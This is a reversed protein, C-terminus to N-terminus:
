EYFDEVEYGAEELHDLVSNEVILHGAGVVVFYTNEGEQELLEGINKAMNIDRIGFLMLSLEDDGVYPLYSEVMGEVDGDKFYGLWENLMDGSSPGEYEEPNLITTLVEDLNAEQFESSLSNLLNGQYLVGELENIHKGDVIANSMFYMDIGLTSSKQAEELTQSATTTLASIDNALSWPKFLKLQEMPLGMLEAVKELKEYTEASIHEDITSGDEYMIIKIYEEMVDSIELTNAEVYLEDSSNYANKLDAHLPYVESTGLHVSGLLYVINNSDEDINEVKWVLGKSGADLEKYIHEIFRTAFVVAQETTCDQELNLDSGSGVILENKVFYEIASLDSVAEYKDLTAYIEQIVGKRTFDYQTIKNETETKLPLNLLDIKYQVGDLILNLRDKTVQSRFNDYYWNADVIDYREAENLSRISWSSVDLVNAYTPLITSSILSLSLVMSKMFKKM